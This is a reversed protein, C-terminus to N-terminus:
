LCDNVMIYYGYGDSVMRVMFHAMIYEYYSYPYNVNVMQLWEYPYYPDGFFACIAMM